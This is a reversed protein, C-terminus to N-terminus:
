FLEQSFDPLASAADKLRQEPDMSVKRAVTGGADNGSLSTRGRQASKGEAARRAGDVNSTSPAQTRRPERGLLQSRRAEREDYERGVEKDLETLVNGFNAGQPNNKITWRLSYDVRRRLESDDLTALNPFMNAYKDNVPIEMAMEVHERIGQELQMAQQQQAQRQQQEQEERLERKIQERLQEPSQNEDREDFEVGQLTWEKYLQLKTKGTLRTYEEILAKPDALRQRAQEFKQREAELQQERYELQRRSDELRKKNRRFNAWQRNSPEDKKEKESPEDGEESDGEEAGDEDKESEVDDDPRDGDEGTEDSDASDGSDGEAESHVEDHPTEVEIPDGWEDVEKTEIAAAAQAIRDTPTEDIEGASEDVFLEDSM